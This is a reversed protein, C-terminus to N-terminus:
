VIFLSDSDQSRLDAVFILLSPFMTSPSTASSAAIGDGFDTGHLFKTLGKDLVAGQSIGVSAALQNRLGFQHKSVQDDTKKIARLTIETSSTM